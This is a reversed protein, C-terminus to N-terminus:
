EGPRAAVKAAPAFDVQVREGGQRHTPNPLEVRINLTDSAADAVASVFVIKGEAMAKDTNFTVRAPDGTKLKMAEAEAVPVEVWLPDVNVIRIVKTQTDVSEGPKAMVLEVTGTIPSYMTMRDVAAKTQVAKRGAQDHEFQALAVNAEAVKVDLRASDVEYPTKIGPPMAEIRKLDVRKQDLVTAQAAIKTQDKAAADDQALAAREEVDDLQVVAQGAKVAEGDKVLVKDVRGPRAFQLTTDGSPRTIGTSGEGLVTSALAAMVLMAAWKEMGHPMDRDRNILNGPERRRKGGV